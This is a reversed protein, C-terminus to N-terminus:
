KGDERYIYFTHSDPSSPQCSVHIGGRFVTHLCYTPLGRETSIKGEKIVAVAAGMAVEVAVNEYIRLIIKEALKM